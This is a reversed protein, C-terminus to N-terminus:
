LFRMPHKLFDCVKYGPTCCNGSSFFLYFYTKGNTPWMFQFSGESPNDGLPVGSTKNYELQVPAGAVTLPDSMPVQFIDEWFSGFSLFLTDSHGNPIILLNPDLLNYNPSEPISLNGHNLWTGTAM